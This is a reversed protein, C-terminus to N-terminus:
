HATQRLKHHRESFALSDMMWVNVKIVAAEYRCQVWILKVIKLCDLISNVCEHNTGLPLIHSQEDWPLMLALVGNLYDKGSILM